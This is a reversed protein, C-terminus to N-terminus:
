QPTEQKVVLMTLELANGSGLRVRSASCLFVGMHMSIRLTPYTRFLYNARDVQEVTAERTRFVWTGDAMVFGRDEVTAKQDLTRVRTARRAPQNVSSTGTISKLVLLGDLDYTPTTISIM